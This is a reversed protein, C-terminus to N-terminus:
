ENWWSIRPFWDLAERRCLVYNAARYTELEPDWCRYTELGLPTVKAVTYGATAALDFVDRLYHRADVWRWTYEFQFVDIRGARLLSSAGSLVAYDHGEVDCKVLAAREIERAAFYSDLTITPVREVSSSTDGRWPYLSNVGATDNVLLLDATGDVDSAAARLFEVDIGSLHRLRRSLADFTASSPELCHLRVNRGIAGACRIAHNSWDGVNAGVDVLEVRGETDVNELVRQLLLLEGDTAMDLPLDLRGENTLFRGLRVLNRRGLGWWLSRILARKATRVLPGFMAGDRVVVQRSM